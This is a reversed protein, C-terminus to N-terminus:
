GATDAVAGEELQQVGGTEPHALRDPEVALVHREVAREDPDDALAVVLAEHRHALHRDVVQRRPQLAGPVIEDCAVVHCRHTAARQEKAIAASAQRTLLRPGGHRTRGFARVETALDARVGEPVGERGVEQLAAGVQPDDLLQEPM